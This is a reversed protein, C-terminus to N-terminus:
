RHTLGFTVATASSGINVMSVARELKHHGTKHLLYSIGIMGVNEGVFNVALGASSRGFMSTVPNLEQGGSQLNSRTVFFDATSFAASTAFLASNERDWFRHSPAEPLSVPQAPQVPQIAIPPAGISEPRLLALSVEQAMAHGGLSLLFLLIAARPRVLAALRNTLM